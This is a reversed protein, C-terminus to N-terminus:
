RGATSRWVDQVVKRIKPATGLSDGMGPLALCAFLFSVLLALPLVPDATVNAIPLLSCLSSRPGRVKTRDALRHLSIEAYDDVMRFTSTCVVEWIEGQYHLLAKKGERCKAYTKNRVQITFGNRSLETVRVPHRHWGVVLWAEGHEAPVACRFAHDHPDYSNMAIECYVAILRVKAQAM